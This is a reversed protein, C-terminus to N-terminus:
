YILTYKLFFFNKEAFIGRFFPAFMFHCLFILLIQNCTAQQLNNLPIDNVTWSTGQLNNAILPGYRSKELSEESNKSLKQPLSFWQVYWLISWRISLGEFYLHTSADLFVNSKVYSSLFNSFLAM